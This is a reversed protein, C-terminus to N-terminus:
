EQIHIPPQRFGPGRVYLTRSSGPRTCRPLIEVQVWEDATADIQFLDRRSIWVDLNTHNDLHEMLVRASVGADQYIFLERSHVPM